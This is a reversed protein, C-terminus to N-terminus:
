NQHLFVMLNFIVKPATKGLWSFERYFAPWTVRINDFDTSYIRGFSERRAFIVFTVFKPSNL